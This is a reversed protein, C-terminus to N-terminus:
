DSDSPQEHSRLPGSPPADRERLVLPTEQVLSALLCEPQVGPKESREGKKKQDAGGSGSSQAKRGDKKPIEDDIKHKSDIGQRKKDLISTKNDCEDDTKQKKGDKAGSPEDQAAKKMKKDRRDARLEALLEQRMEEKVKTAVKEIEQSLVAKDAKEKNV